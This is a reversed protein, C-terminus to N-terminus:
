SKKRRATVIDLTVTPALSLENLRALVKASPKRLTEALPGQLLALVTLIAEHDWSTIGAAAALDQEVKALYKKLAKPEHVALDAFAAPSDKEAIFSFVGALGARDVAVLADVCSLNLVGGPDGATAAPGLAGAALAFLAFLRIAHRM